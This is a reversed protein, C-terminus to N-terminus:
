AAKSSSIPLSVTELTTLDFRSAGDIDLGIVGGDGDLDVVLGDAIERADVGPGPKLEIYLSDTEPYYQLKVIEGQRLGPGSLCQVTEGDPLVVVRLFRDDAEGALTVRVWRRHRGDVQRASAVPDILARECWERRIYPRKLLVQEEFYRTTKM